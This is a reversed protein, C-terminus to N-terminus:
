RPLDPKWPFKHSSYNGKEETYAMFEALIHIFDILSVLSLMRDRSHANGTGSPVRIRVASRPLEVLM